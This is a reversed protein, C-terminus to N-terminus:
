RATAAPDPPALGTFMAGPRQPHERVQITVPPINKGPGPPGSGDFANIWEQVQPSNFAAAMESERTTPVPSLKILSVLTLATPFRRRLAISIPCQHIDGPVGNAIDEETVPCDLEPIIVAEM